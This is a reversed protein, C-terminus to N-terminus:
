NQPSCLLRIGEALSREVPVIRLWGNTAVAMSGMITGRLNIACVHDFADETLEDLPKDGGASSVGVNKHLIGIRGWRGRAAEVAAALTEEKTVDAAVPM